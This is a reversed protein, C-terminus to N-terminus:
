VLAKVKNVWKNKKLVQWLDYSAHLNLWYHTSTNFAKALKVAMHPSIGAKGNVFSPVRREMKSWNWWNVGDENVENKKWCPLRLM